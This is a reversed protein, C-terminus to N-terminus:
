TPKHGDYVIMLYTCIYIYIRLYMHLIYRLACCIQPPFFEVLPAAGHGMDCYRKTLYMYQTRLYSYLFSHIYVYVYIIIMNTQKM